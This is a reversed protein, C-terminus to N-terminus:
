RYNLHPKPTTYIINNEVAYRLLGVTSKVGIKDKINQRIKEVSRISLHVLDAIEKNSKEEWLLELIRVERDTLKINKDDALQEINRQIGLYLMETFYRNRYIKGECISIVAKMLEEPHDTKSVYGYVGLNLLDSIIGVDTCMSLILIKIDPYEQHIRRLSDRINQQQMLVDIILVDVPYDKLKQFLDYLESTDIAVNLREQEIFNSRLLKRFLTSEDVIALNWLKFQM